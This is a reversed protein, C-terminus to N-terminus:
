QKVQFGVSYVTSGGAAIFNLLYSGTGYGTTKLNFIYGGLSADYRFDFDPNASGADDVLPSAQSAIQIVSVAHVLNAPSSVNAGNADVLRIKIPITSGSKHTKTQDFLIQFGFNVTYNVLSPAASNGANDTASVTFTRAGALATNLASGNASTGACTAVGSGGDTCNFNVPVAQNLLYNGATPATITIVPSKKDIKNGTVPGATACNGANDCVSRSGTSANATETGVSVSTTLSFNADGANALQSFNDSGTCAISADASHWAGDASGCSVAPATADRKITVSQNASGGGSTASCTFTVGTTDATVSTTDCGTSTSVGSEPDTVSWSVAVDSTYWDNNGLSGTVTPTILPPSSDFSSLEGIESASLARNHFTIEDLAGDFDQRSGSSLSGFELDAGNSLDTPSAEAVTVRLVGDIYLYLVNSQRVAAIHYWRGIVFNSKPYRANTDIGPTRTEIGIGGGGLCTDCINFLWGRYGAENGFTDKHILGNGNNALDNFKAFFSVTFDGTGVNLNPSNPVSVRDDIGDFRFAQGSVGATFTTGNLLTGNNIGASDLANGEAQWRSALSDGFEYAGIDCRAGQPRGVGRQDTTIPIGATNTCDALPIADIAPSGNLVAHTSTNGGNNALPGLLPNTSNMDGPGTLSCTSDGAINHGQSVVVGPAAYCDDSLGRTPSALVSNKVVTTGPASFADAIADGRGSDNQNEFITSSTITSTAGAAFNIIGGGGYGSFSTNYSITSNEIKFTSIFSGIGGGGAGFGVNDTITSDAVNLNSGIMGIGGGGRNVNGGRGGRITVANLTLDTLFVYIIRFDPTGAASSRQITAGNGNITLTHRIYPLGAGGAYGDDEAVATLTYAGGPALNITHSGPNANASNIAAILGPVDGDAINFTAARAEQSVVAMTLFALVLAIVKLPSQTSPKM